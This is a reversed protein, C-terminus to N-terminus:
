RSIVILTGRDAYGEPPGDRAILSIESRYYVDAGFLDAYLRSIELIQGHEEVKAVVGDESYSGTLFGRLFGDSTELTFLVNLKSFLKQANDMANSLETVDQRLIGSLDGVCQGATHVRCLVRGDPLTETIGPATMATSFTIVLRRRALDLPRSQNQVAIWQLPEGLPLGTITSLTEPQIAAPQPSLLPHRFRPEGSDTRAFLLFADQEDPAIGLHVALLKSIERSPRRDGAEFKRISAVSCGVRASLESQTLDLSRRRQHLWNAFATKSETEM